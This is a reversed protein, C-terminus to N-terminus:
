PKRGWFIELGRWEFQGMDVLLGDFAQRLSYM